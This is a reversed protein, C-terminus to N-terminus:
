GARGKGRLTRLLAVADALNGSSKLKAHASRVAAQGQAQSTQKAGPRVVKPKGAIMRAVKDKGAQLADYKAAKDMVRIMWPRVLGRLDAPEAGENLAYATLAAYDKDRAARDSWAPNYTEALDRDRAAEADLQARARQSDAARAAHALLELRETQEAFRALGREPDEALHAKLSKPRPAHHQLAGMLHDLERLRQSRETEYQRREAALSQTKRTHDAKLMFGDRVEDLSVKVGNGLDIMEPVPAADASPAGSADEGQTGDRDEPPDDVADESEPLGSAGETRRADRAEPTRGGDFRTDEAQQAAAYRERAEALTIAQPANSDTM